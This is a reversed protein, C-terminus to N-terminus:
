CRQSDRSTPAAGSTLLHIASQPAIQRGTQRRLSTAADPPAARSSAGMPRDGVSRKVLSPRRPVAEGAEDATDPTMEGGVSRDPLRRIRSDDIVLKTAQAAGRIEDYLILVRRM